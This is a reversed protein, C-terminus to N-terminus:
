KGKFLGTPRMLMVLIMIFFAIASKYGPEVLPGDGIWAYSSLEEVIGIIFGGAAAGYPKGVGGLVAAAFIPLMIKFGMQTEVQTDIALFVGACCALVASLMWTARVVMQTDIGTLRALEPHDSMARMAKGIRTKSLLLHVAVMMVLAAGIIMLHKPLINITDLISVPTQIGPSMVRVKVGWFFQIASRLMLMVGFSAIVLMITPAKRLPKYFARDLLLAALMTLVCSIPLIVLPHLSTLTMLSWTIYVGLTMLEGHSFNAFRLIGFTFSLGIAGLAYISGLVLGPVLYFNLFEAM